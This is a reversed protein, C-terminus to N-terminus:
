DFGLGCDLSWGGVELGLWSEIALTPNPIQCQSRTETQIQAKPTTPNQISSPNSDREVGGTLAIGGGRGGSSGDLFIRTARPPRFCCM